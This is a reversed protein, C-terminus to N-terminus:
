INLRCGAILGSAPMIVFSCKTYGSRVSCVLLLHIHMLSKHGQLCVQFRSGQHPPEDLSDTCPGVDNHESHRACLPWSTSLQRRQTCIVSAGWISGSRPESNFISHWDYQTHLGPQTESFAAVSSTHSYRICHFGLLVVKFPGRSLTTHSPLRMISTHTFAARTSHLNHLIHM